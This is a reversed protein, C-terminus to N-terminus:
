PGGLTIGTSGQVDHNTDNGRVGVAIGVAAAALAVGVSTWLWWQKRLPRRDDRPTEARPLALQLASPTLSPVLRVEVQLNEGGRIQISRREPVRGHAQFELLHEGLQLSLSAKPGRGMRVGDVSVTATEPDVDVHVEGVYLKARALLKEAEVRLKGDLPKILADLAQQLHKVSDGYNRLEFDVNGLARLTRASPLLEHARQFQVRAEAWHGREYEALGARVAEDYGTPEAPDRAGVEAAPVPESAVSPSQARVSQAFTLLLGFAILWDVVVSRGYQPASSM